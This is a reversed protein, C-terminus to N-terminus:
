GSLSIAAIRFGLSNAAVDRAEKLWDVVTPVHQGRVAGYGLAAGILLISASMGFGNPLPLRAVREALRATLRSYDSIWTLRDATREDPPTQVHTLTPEDFPAGIRDGDSPGSRTLSQDLRGGGDM